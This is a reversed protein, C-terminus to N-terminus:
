AVVVLAPQPSHYELLVVAAARADLPLGEDDTDYVWGDVSAAIFHPATCWARRISMASGLLFPDGTGEVPVFWLEFPEVQNVLQACEHKSSVRIIDYPM